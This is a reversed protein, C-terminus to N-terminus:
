RQLLIGVDKAYQPDDVVVYSYPPEILHKCVTKQYQFSVTLLLEGLITFSLLSLVYQLHRVCRMSVSKLRIM